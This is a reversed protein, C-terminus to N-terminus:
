GLTNVERGNAIDKGVFSALPEIFYVPFIAGVSWSRKGCESDQLRRFPDYDKPQMDPFWLYCLALEKKHWLFLCGRHPASESTELSVSYRRSCISRKRLSIPSNSKSPRRIRRLSPLRHAAFPMLRKYAHAQMGNWKRSKISWSGLQLLIFLNSRLPTPTSRFSNPWRSKSRDLHHKWLSTTGAPKRRKPLHTEVEQGKAQDWM